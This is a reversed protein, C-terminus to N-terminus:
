FAKPFKMSYQGLYFPIMLWIVFFRVMYKEVFGDYFFYDLTFYLVLFSLLVLM